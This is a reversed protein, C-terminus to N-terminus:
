KVDGKELKRLIHERAATLDPGVNRKIDLEAAEELVRRKEREVSAQREAEERAAKALREAEAARKRAAEQEEPPAGALRAFDHDFRAREAALEARRASREQDHTGTLSLFSWVAIAAVAALGLTGREM